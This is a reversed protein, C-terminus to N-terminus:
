KQFKGHCVVRLDGRHIDGGDIGGLFFVGLRAWSEEVQGDFAMAFKVFHENGIFGGEADVVDVIQADGGAPEAFDDAKELM